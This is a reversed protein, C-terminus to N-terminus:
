VSKRQTDCVLALHCNWYLTIYLALGYALIFFNGTCLLTSIYEVLHQYSIDEQSFGNTSWQSKTLPSLRGSPVDVGVVHVGRTKAKEFVSTEASTESMFGGFLIIIIREKRIKENNSVANFVNSFIYNFLKISQNEASNQEETLNPRYQIRDLTWYISRRNTFADLTFYISNLSGFSVTAARVVGNDIDLTHLIIMKALEIM